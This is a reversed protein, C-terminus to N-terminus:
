VVLGDFDSFQYVFYHTRGLPLHFVLFLTDIHLHPGVQGLHPTITSAESLYQRVQDTVGSLVRRFAPGQQHPCFKGFIAPIQFARPLYNMEPHFVIANANTRFVLLLDKLLKEAGFILFRTFSWASSQTQIDGLTEDFHLASANPEFTFKALPCSEMECDGDGLVLLTINNTTSSCIKHCKLGSNSNSLRELPALGSQLGRMLGKIMEARSSWTQPNQDRRM